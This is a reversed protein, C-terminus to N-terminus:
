ARRGEEKGARDRPVISRYGPLNVEETSEDLWTETVFVIDPKSNKLQISLKAHNKPNRISRINTLFYSVGEKASQRNKARKKPPQADSPDSEENAGL